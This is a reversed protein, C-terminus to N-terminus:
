MVHCLNPKGIIREYDTIPPCHLNYICNICPKLFQRRKKWSRSSSLERHMIEQISNKNLNGLKSENLSSYVYGDSLITLKGFENTNIAKRSFLTKRDPTEKQIDESTLYVYDEFFKVNNKNYYPNIKYNTIGTKEILLDIKGIEEVDEVIFVLEPNLHKSLKISYNLRDFDIASNILLKLNINFNNFLHLNDLTSDNINLYNVYINKEFLYNNITQLLSKLDSIALINGGVFNVRNLPSEKLVEFLSELVNISIKTNKSKKCFIFQKYYKQCTICEQECEGNVYLTLENLYTLINEGYWKKFSYTSGVNRKLKPIIQIPKCKSWSTDIIDGSFSSRLSEIFEQYPSIRLLEEDISLIMLNGRKEFKKTLVLIEKKDFVLYIKNLTNYYLAKDSKINVVVYPEIYIWYKKM